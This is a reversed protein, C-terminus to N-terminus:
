LFDYARLMRNMADVVSKSARLLTRNKVIHKVFDNFLIQQKMKASCKNHTLEDNYEVLLYLGPVFIYVSITFPKTGHKVELSCQIDVKIDINIAKMLSHAVNTHFKKSTKM